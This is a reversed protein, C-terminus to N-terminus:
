KLDNLFQQIIRGISQQEKLFADHGYRSHISILKSNALSAMREILAHPILQDEFVSVCTLPTSIARPNISHLDISQSLRCFADADFHQAFDHGRSKLYNVIEANFGEDTISCSQNFRDDLEASSRYTLMALARALIQAQHTQQGQQGLAIIERQIYRIATSQASATHAASIVLAQKISAQFPKSKKLTSFSQESGDHTNNSRYFSKNFRNHSQVPDENDTKSCNNSLLSLVVKGGYSSGIAAEFQSISLHHQLWAIANAQDRTDIANCLASADSDPASSQGNGGLYDIGLVCYDNLNIAGENNVQASWWGSAYETTCHAVDRGASIGGLVLICPKNSDGYLTYALKGENIVGGYHLRWHAPLAACTRQIAIKPPCKVTATVSM